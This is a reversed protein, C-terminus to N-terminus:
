LARPCSKTSSTKTFMKLIIWMWHIFSAECMWTNCMNVSHFCYASVFSQESTWPRCHVHVVFCFVSWTNFSILTQVFYRWKTAKTFKIAFIKNKRADPRHWSECSRHVGGYFSEDAWLIEIVKCFEIYPIWIFILVKLKEKIQSRTFNQPIDSM